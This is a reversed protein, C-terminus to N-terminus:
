EEQTDEMIDEVEHMADKCSDCVYYLTKGYGRVMTAGDVEQGYGCEICMLIIM